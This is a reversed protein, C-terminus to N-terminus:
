NEEELDENREEMSGAMLKGVQEGSVKPSLVNVSPYYGTRGWYSFLGSM